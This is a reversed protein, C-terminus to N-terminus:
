CCDQQQMIPVEAFKLLGFLGLLSRVRRDERVVTVIEEPVERERWPMPPMRDIVCRLRMLSVDFYHVKGGMWAFVLVARDGVAATLGVAM